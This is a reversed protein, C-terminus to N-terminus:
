SPNYLKQTARTIKNHLNGYTYGTSRRGTV